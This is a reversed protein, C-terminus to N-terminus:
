IVAVVQVRQIFKQRAGESARDWARLLDGLEGAEGEGLPKRLEEIESELGTIKIELRRKDAQLEEVRVRLREAEGASDPGIDGRLVGLFHRQIEGPVKAFHNFLKRAAREHSPKLTAYADSPKPKHGKTDETPPPKPVAVKKVVINRVVRKIEAVPLAEGSKAREIVANRAEDPTSPAFLLYLASVPLDLNGFNPLKEQAEYVHIFNDATQRSWNFERKLWPLWQGHELHNDRCDVLRRGIEIVDDVVRKGLARIAQAHEVLVPDATFLKIPEFIAKVQAAQAPRDIHDDFGNKKGGAEGAGQDPAPRKV